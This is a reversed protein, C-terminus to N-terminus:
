KHSRASRPLGLLEGEGLKGTRCFGDGLQRNIIPKVGHFITQCCTGLILKVVQGLSPNSASPKIWALKPCPFHQRPRWFEQTKGAYIKLLVVLWGYSLNSGLLNFTSFWRILHNWIAEMVMKHYNESQIPPWWHTMTRSWKSRGSPFIASNVRWCHGHDFANKGAM